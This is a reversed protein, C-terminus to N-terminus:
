RGCDAVTRGPMRDSGEYGPRSYTVHRIGRDHAEKLWWEPMVRTGPTGPHFILVTGDKPGTDEAM